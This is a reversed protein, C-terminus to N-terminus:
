LAKLVESLIFATTQEQDFVEPEPHNTKGSESRSTQASKTHSQQTTTSGPQSPRSHGSSSDRWNEPRLASVRTRHTLKRNRNHGIPAHRCWGDAWDTDINALSSLPEAAM